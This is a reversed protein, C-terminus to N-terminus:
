IGFRGAIGRAPEFHKRVLDAKLEEKKSSGITSLFDDLDYTTMGIGNDSITLTCHKQDTIINIRGKPRGLLGESLVCADNANQLLERAAIYPDNYLNGGLKMILQPINTKFSKQVM